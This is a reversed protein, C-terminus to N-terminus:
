NEYRQRLAAPDAGRWYAFRLRWMLWITRWVGYKEWRRGSTTIRERLCAPSMKARLRKSLEVDEMLAQQPVGGIADLLSRTVFIGQDGTAIGTLRSRLNMMWAVVRLMPHSGTIHVDFRGWHPGQSLCRQIQQLAEPPLLSDAHLFLLARGSARQVGAALQSARGRPAVIVLDALASAQTRTDDTSDGDVVIIEVGQARWAKLGRLTTAIHASENLTPVIVSLWLPSQM